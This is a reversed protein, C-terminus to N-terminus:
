VMLSIPSSTGLCVTWKRRKEWGWGLCIGEEGEGKLGGGRWGGRVGGGGGWNTVVFAGQTDMPTFLHETHAHTSTSPARSAM